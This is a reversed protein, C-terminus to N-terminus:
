DRVAAHVINSVRRLLSGDDEAAPRTTLIVCLLDTQPDAWAVTGTAGVHGFTRDSGLDGFYNWVKSRKLAWGLGWPSASPANQDAIMARATAAGLVRKGDYIGENLFLQLFVALDPATSHMGGWPHGMDRWYQTNAGFRAADARNQESSPSGQCWATERIARGGLGLSTRKMGLPEFIETREFDRLPRKVVSEVIDAALLIGMSQYAFSTGPVFLLPTTLAGQSFQTLPANARRLEVNQPLMDPLGSVHTLLDRVRVKDRGEGRFGPLYRQVPDALSIRGQEVLLMLATATVPKTISAVLYITDPEAKASTPDPALRGSGHRLVVVGRRAVVISAALVRESRTEDDLLRVADQLRAASMGAAEPKGPRLVRDNAEGAVAVASLAVISLVAIQLVRHELM